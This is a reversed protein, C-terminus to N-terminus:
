NIFGEIKLMMEKYKDLYRSAFTECKKRDFTLIKDLVVGPPPTKDIITGSVTRNDSFGAINLIDYIKSSRDNCWQMFYRIGYQDFSYCPIANHLASVISHMNHGVYGSSYKIISYWEIPSLPLEIKKSTQNNNAFGYPFPLGICEYGNDNCLTEFEVTWKSSVSRGNRLGLLIYSEPLNFKRLIQAKSSIYDACNFNFAFVPDPTIDPIISGNSICKYMDRTWSDRVSIYKFQKVLSFMENKLRKSFLNYNSQQSSASMLFVNVDPSYKLFDGWFPNPFMRDSTPRSVSIFKKSPFVIQSLFPHHQAVADSGIIVNKLNEKRIQEAVEISNSCLSTKVCNAFFKQHQLAQEQPFKSYFDIADTPSYDIFIPEYGKNKLYNYTSFAQLNAGFNYARLFTIIGIKM